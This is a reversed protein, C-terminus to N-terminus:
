LAHAAAALATIEEWRGANILAAPAVWSGGVCLVNPLALYDAANDAGIGGTPCFIVDAFPGALAKLMKVGGAPGAPFFKLLDLGAAGAALIEGPTMVGPLLPLRSDRAARALDPAFGPSVAFRAGALAVSAFEHASCVTGAGVVAQPVQEGIRRMAELAAATRLTVELARLGGAVLARALPVATEVDEIVLVPLVRVERLLVRLMPDDIAASNM